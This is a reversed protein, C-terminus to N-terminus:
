RSVKKFCKGDPYCIIFGDKVKETKVGQNKSIYGESTSLRKIGCSVELRSNLYVYEGKSCAECHSSREIRIRDLRLSKMDLYYLNGDIEGMLHKLMLQVQLSATVDIVTNLTGITECANTDAENAYNMFCSLCSTVKPVILKVSSYEGIVGGYILPIGLKVCADNLVLRYFLSDLADFVYDSGKILEEVNTQDVVDIVADIKIGSNIKALRDKCVLAKPKGVDEEMFLRTRHLNSIEVIDADIIKIYGVGLRTLLEALATGLAGCGVITVKLGALKQQVEFGLVLIQRSYREV